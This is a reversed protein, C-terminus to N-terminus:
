KPVDQESSSFGFSICADPDVVNFFTSDQNPDFYLVCEWTGNSTLYHLDFSTYVSSNDASATDAIQACNKAADCMDLLGSMPSYIPPHSQDDNGPNTFNEIRYQGVYYEDYTVNVGAM